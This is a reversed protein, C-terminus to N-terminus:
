VLWGAVQGVKAYTELGRSSHELLSASFRVMRPQFITVLCSGGFAFYGKEAGKSVQTGPTFTQHIRGVCTAGVELILVESGDALTLLTRQRRNQWLIALSRRLAIPSVSRLGGAIARAFGAQGALPFHFRHYDVPCLRSILLSGGNFRKALASDGIFTSLDFRQGKAYFVSSEDVVPIALHRGDAPFGVSDPAPDVTRASPKLRRYFFDNFSKYSDAPEAFEDEDVGYREIFPRIRSVSSPRDMRWGYWQSFWARQLLARTTLRGLPNEYAWRLYSEGYVRETEVQGSSPNFFRIPKNSVSV